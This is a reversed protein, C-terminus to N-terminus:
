YAVPIPKIGRGSSACFDWVGETMDFGFGGSGNRTGAATSHDEKSNATLKFIKGDQM